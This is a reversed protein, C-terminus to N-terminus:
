LLFVKGEQDLFQEILLNVFIGGVGLVLPVRHRGVGASVGVFHSIPQFGALHSPQEVTEVFHVGREVTGV